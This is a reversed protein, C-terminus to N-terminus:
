SLGFLDRFWLTPYGVYKLHFIYLGLIDEKTSYGKDVFGNDDGKTIYRYSGDVNYINIIRHVLIINDHKFLIIDGVSLEQSSYAKFFVADGKEITGHMSESAVVMLGYKFKCSVAMCLALCTIITLVTALINNKNENKRNHNRAFSDNTYYYMLYAFTLSIFTKFFTFFDPIIPIVFQYISTIIRFIITGKIGFNQVNYNYYVNNILAAFFISGFFDAFESLKSLDYYGTNIYIEISTMAVLTMIISVRNKCSLLKNRILESITIILCFPIIFRLITKLSFRVTAYYYGFYLGLLYILAIYLLSFFLMMTFASKEYLSRRAPIKSIIATIFYMISLLFLFIYKHGQMFITGLVALVTIIIEVIYFGFYKLKM